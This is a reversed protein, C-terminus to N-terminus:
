TGNVAGLDVRHLERHSAGAPGLVSSMVMVHRVRFSAADAPEDVRLDPVGLGSFRALTLHPLFGEGARERATRALRRALRRQLELLTPPADTTLAVLRARGRQPLSVLRAAALEISDLGAASRNVSEIVDPIRAASVEGVFQLTIHVQDRPTARSPPIKLRQLLSLAHEVVATPPYVAVFLRM